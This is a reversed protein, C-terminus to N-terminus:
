KCHSWVSFGISTIFSAISVYFALRAYKTATATAKTAKTAEIIAIRSQEMSEKQSNIALYTSFGQQTLKIWDNSTESGTILGMDELEKFAPDTNRIEYITAIKVRGIMTDNACEKLINFYLEPYNRTNNSKMDM